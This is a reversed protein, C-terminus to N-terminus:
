RGGGTGSYNSEGQEKIFTAKKVESKNEVQLPQLEYQVNDLQIRLTETTLM